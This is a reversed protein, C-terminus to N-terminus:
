ELVGSCAARTQGLFRASLQSARTPGSEYAFVFEDIRSPDAVQWEWDQM